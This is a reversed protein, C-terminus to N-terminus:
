ARKGFRKRCCSWAKNESVPRPEPSMVVAVPVRARKEALGFETGGAAVLNGRRLSSWRLPQSEGDGYRAVRGITTRCSTLRPWPTLDRSGEADAVELAAELEREAPNLEDQDSM